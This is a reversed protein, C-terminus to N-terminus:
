RKKRRERKSNNLKLIRDETIPFYMLGSDCLGQEYFRDYRGLIEATDFNIEIPLANKPVLGERNIPLVGWYHIQGNGRTGYFLLGVVSSNYSNIKGYANAKVVFPERGKLADIAIQKFKENVFRLANKNQMVASKVIEESQEEVFQLLMGIKRVAELCITPTQLHIFQFYYPWIKIAEIAMEETLNDINSIFNPSKINKRLEIKFDELSGKYKM